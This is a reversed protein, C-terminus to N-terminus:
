PTVPPNAQVIQQITSIPLTEVSALLQAKYSIAISGLATQVQQQFVLSPTPISPNVASALAADQDPTTTFQYLM